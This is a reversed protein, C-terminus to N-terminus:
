ISGDELSLSFSFLFLLSVLFNASCARGAGVALM